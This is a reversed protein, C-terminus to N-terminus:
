GSPSSSRLSGVFARIKEAHAAMTKEPGYAKVFISQGDQPVIAGLMRHGKREGVPGRDGRYSGSYDVLTVQIGAIEVESRSEKRPKEGFQSRWRDVNEEISGGARSVTLRGDSEDEDARPLTFEALVFGIRPQKRVWDGPATLCLSGLDVTPSSLDVQAQPRTQTPPRRPTATPHASQRDPGPVGRVSPSHEDGCGVSWLLCVGIM